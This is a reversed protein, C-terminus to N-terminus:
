GVRFDGEHSGDCMTIRMDDLDVGPRSGYLNQKGFLDGKQDAHQACRGNYCKRTRLNVEM